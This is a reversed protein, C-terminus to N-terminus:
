RIMMPALETHRASLARVADGIGFLGGVFDDVWPALEILLAAEATTDLGHPAARACRLRAGLGADGADLWELFAADLAVLGERQYLHEFRLGHALSLM